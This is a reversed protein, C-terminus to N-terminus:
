LANAAPQQRIPLPYPKPDYREAPGLNACANACSRWWRRVDPAWTPVCTSKQRPGRWCRAPLPRLARASNPRCTSKPWGWHSGPRLSADTVGSSGHLVLPLDVVRRIAELLELDLAITKKKGSHISGIAVALTDVGTVRAFDAADAPHTLGTRADVVEDGEPKPM